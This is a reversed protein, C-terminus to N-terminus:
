LKNRYGVPSLGTQAKFFKGFVSQDAFDLMNSVQSVTLTKNQLLVKAELAIAEDIWKGASKGTQRKVTASLSKPQVHLRQAYFDLKHETVYYQNLLQRFKAFVPYRIALNSPVTFFNKHHADIEYILAFFYSRVIEAEHINGSTQCLKILEFIRRIRSDLQDDIQFSNLDTNEFFPLNALFLRDVFKELLFSERFFVIEMKMLDSQKSFSRIVSPGLTIIAPGDIKTTSLGANLQISGEKLYAIAYTEARYPEELYPHNEVQVFLYERSTDPVSFLQRHRSLSFTKIEDMM